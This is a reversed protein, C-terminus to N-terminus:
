LNLLLNELDNKTTEEAKELIKINNKNVFHIESLIDYVWIESKDVLKKLHNILIEKEKSLYNYIVEKQHNPIQNYFKLLENKFEDDILITNQIKLYLDEM